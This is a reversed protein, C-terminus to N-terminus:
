PTSKYRVAAVLAWKNERWRAAFPGPPIELTVTAIGLEKGAWTGFSGPTPYGISGKSPYGNLDAMARALPESQAGDWNNVRYPNHVSVIKAPRLRRVLDLAVRAEPESAPSAGAGAWDRTPFNRNLDVRRANTRRGAVYGDPNLIPVVVVKRGELPLWRVERCFALVVDVGLKEDGHFGGFVLTVEPGDGFEAAYIPRGEVSRGIERWGVDPDGRFWPPRVEAPGTCAALPLLAFALKKM